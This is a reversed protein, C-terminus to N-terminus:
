RRATTKESVVSPCVSLCVSLCVGLLTGTSRVECLPWNALWGTPAVSSGRARRILLSCGTLSLSLIEDLRDILSTNIISDGCSM